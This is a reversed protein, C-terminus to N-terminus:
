ESHTKVASEETTGQQRSRRSQDASAVSAVAGLGRVVAVLADEDLRSLWDRLVDARYRNLRDVLEHGKPSLQAWTRRRDAPDETRHVMDLHVLKDVLISAAPQGIGLACALRGITVAGESALYSCAKAQAMSLDLHIWLPLAASHMAGIVQGMAELAEDILTDTQTTM